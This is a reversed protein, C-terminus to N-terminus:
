LFRPPPPTEGIRAPRTGRREAERRCWGQWTLSWDLKVADKGAKALWYGRFDEATRNVSLGLDVAYQRDANSPRWDEPLRSATKKPAVITARKGESESESESEAKVRGNIPHNVVRNVRRNKSPKQSVLNPNGGRKGNRFDQAYSEADRVMRRSYIVGAPTRSFVGNTELELVLAVVREETSRFVAALQTMSMPAQGVVLYGPPDCMSALALMDAWLARAEASCMRLTIENLWDSWVWKSWRNHRAM